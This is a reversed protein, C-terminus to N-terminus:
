HSYLAKISGWTTSRVPVPECSFTQPSGLFVHAPPCGPCVNVPEAVYLDDVYTGVPENNCRIAEVTEASPHPVIRIQSCNQSTGFAMYSITVLLGDGVLCFGYCLTIGDQTNGTAIGTHVTESMYTMTVGPDAVVKFRSAVAGLNLTHYVSITRIDVNNDFIRCNDAVRVSLAGEFPQAFVPGFTISALLYASCAFGSRRRFSLRFEERFVVRKTDSRM